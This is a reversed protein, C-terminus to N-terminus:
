AKNKTRTAIYRRTFHLTKYSESRAPPWPGTFALFGVPKPRPSRPSVFFPLSIGVAFFFRSILLCTCYIQGFINYKKREERRRPSWDVTKQITDKSKLQDTMNDPHSQHIEIRDTLLMCSQCFNQFCKQPHKTKWLHTDIFVTSFVRTFKNM